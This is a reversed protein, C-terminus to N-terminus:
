GEMAELVEKAIIAIGGFTNAIRSKFEALDAAASAGNGILTLGEKAAEVNREAKMLKEVLWLPFNNDDCEKALEEIRQIAAERNTIM